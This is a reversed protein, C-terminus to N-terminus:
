GKSPQRTIKGDEENISNTWFAFQLISQQTIVQKLTDDKVGIKFRSIVNMAVGKSHGVPLNHLTGIVQWFNMISISSCSSGYHASM